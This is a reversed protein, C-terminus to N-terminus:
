ETDAHQDIKAVDNLLISGNSTELRVEDNGGQQLEGVLSNERSEHVVVPLESRIRGNSTHAELHGHYSFPLALQIAGNSTKITIPANGDRVNVRINGNSTSFVMLDTQQEIEATIAGNSTSGYLHGRIDELNIKGNTTNLHLYGQTHAVHIPGNSTKAEVRALWNQVDIPGNSTELNLDVGPPASVQYRTSLGVNRPPRPIRVRFALTDGERESYANVREMYERAASESRAFIELRLSVSIQTTDTARVIIPGNLGKVDLTHIEEANETWFKEQIVKARSSFPPHYDASEVISTSGDVVAETVTIPVMVVAEVLGASAEVLGTAVDIPATLCAHFAMGVVLILLLLGFLQNKRLNM